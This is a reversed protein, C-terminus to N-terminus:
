NWYPAILHGNGNRHDIDKDHKLELITRNSTIFLDFSHALNNLKLELITRNSTKIVVLDGTKYKLKLELITRNSTAM